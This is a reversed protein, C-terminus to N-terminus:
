QKIDELMEYVLSPEYGKQLLYGVVKVARSAHDMTLEAWKREALGRLVVRYESEKIEALARDIWVAHIQHQKLHLRIRVRGWRNIRFKGGAFAEAFRQESFYGEAELHALIQDNETDSLGFLLLKKRVELPSRERFACFREM